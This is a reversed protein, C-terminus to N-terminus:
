HPPGRNDWAFLFALPSEVTYHVAPAHDGALTVPVAVGRTRVVLARGITPMSRLWRLGWRLIVACALAVAAHIALMSSAVHTGQAPMPMDHQTHGSADSAVGAGHGLMQHMVPQLLLTVAVARVFTLRVRSAFTTSLAVSLAALGTLAYIDVAGGAAVHAATATAIILLGSSAAALLSRSSRAPM